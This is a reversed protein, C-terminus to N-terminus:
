KNRDQLNQTKLMFGNANFTNAIQRREENAFATAIFIPLTKNEQRINKLVTLGDVHPMMIDLLVADPKETRIKDM